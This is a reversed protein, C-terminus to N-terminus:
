RTNPSLGKLRIWGTNDRDATTTAPESVQDLQELMRGYRVHFQGPKSTRAWISISEATVHGLMPGHTINLTQALSLQSAMLLLGAINMCIRHIM